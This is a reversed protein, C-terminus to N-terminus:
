FGLAGAFIADQSIAFQLAGSNQSAPSLYTKLQHDTFHSAHCKVSPLQATPLHKEYAGTQEVLWTAEEVKGQTSNVQCPTVINNITANFSLKSVAYAGGYVASGVVLPAIVDERSM